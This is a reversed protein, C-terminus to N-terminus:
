LVSLRIYKGRMQKQLSSMDVAHRIDKTLDDLMHTILSQVQTEMQKMNYLIQLGAAMKSQNQQRVGEQLLTNAENEIREKAKGIFVQEQTVIDIGDFDSEKSIIGLLNQNM